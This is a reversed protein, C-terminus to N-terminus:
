VKRNLFETLIADAEAKTYLADPDLAVAAAWARSSFDRSEALARGTYKIKDSSFDLEKVKNRAMELELGTEHILKMQLPEEEPEFWVTRSVWFTIAAQTGDIMRSERDRTAIPRDGDVPIFRLSLEAKEVARRLRHIDGTCLVAVSYLEDLRVRPVLMERQRGSVREVIFCPETINQKPNQVYVTWDPFLRALHTGIATVIGVTGETDLNM